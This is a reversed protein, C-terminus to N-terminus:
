EKAGLMKATAKLKKSSVVPAKGNKVLSAKIGKLLATQEKAYHPVADWSAASELVQRKSRLEGKEDTTLTTTKTSLRRVVTRAQEVEVSDMTSLGFMPSMLLQHLMMKRPEGVFPVVTPLQEKGERRLVYLEGEGCQQATLASHTTAIFQFNPLMDTLFDVLNRRWVPHLHLDLEDILLVGRTGLPNKRDPFTETIRYLLDGCWAAMNQYGDSLQSLPVDGDVTKFMIQRQLRDIKSFAMGPLLKDLAEQVAALAGKGKRYDLDMAWQELSVLAADASFMTAMGQARPSRSREEPFRSHFKAVPPRRSVGYGLFFYNRDAHVIASDLAELSSSNREFITKLGDGRNIVLKIERTEGKATVLSGEISCQKAGNRIWADPEGLVDPLADSGALLLAIARLVSSKGCGNEGLLLTWRRTGSSGTGFELALSEISRVNRLAIRTLFM